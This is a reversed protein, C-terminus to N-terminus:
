QEVRFNFERNYYEETNGSIYKLNITYHRIPLFNSLDLDIFYGIQDISVKTGVLNYPLMELGTVADTISFYLTGDLRYRNLEQRIRNYTRDPFQKRVSFRLRTKENPRYISKLNEVNVIFNSNIIIDNESTVDNPSEWYIVLKPIYITHTERGFFKLKGYIDANSESQNEHKIIIGHNDYDNNIWGKIIDSVDMKVDPAAVAFEQSGSVDNWTGGGTVSTYFSSGSTLDWNTEGDFTKWSVGNKIEPLDHLNGNGNKWDTNLPHSVLTYNDNLSEVHATHLHLYAKVNDVSDPNNDFYEFVSDLNFKILIRSNYNKEWSSIDYNVNDRYEGEAFKTIELIQDIGTNREPFREYITADKEPYLIKYM